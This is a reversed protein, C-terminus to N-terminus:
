GDQGAQAALIGGGLLLAVAHGGLEARAMRLANLDSLSNSLRRALM